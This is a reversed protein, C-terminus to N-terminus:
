GSELSNTSSDVFNVCGLTSMLEVIDSKNTADFQFSTNKWTVADFKARLEKDVKDLANTYKQYMRFIIHMNKDLYFMECRTKCINILYRLIRVGSGNLGNALIAEGVNLFRRTSSRFGQGFRQRQNLVALQELFKQRTEKLLADRRKNM